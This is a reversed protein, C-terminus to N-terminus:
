GLQKGDLPASANGRDPFSVPPYGIMLNIRVKDEAASRTPTAAPGDAVAWITVDLLKETDGFPAAVNEIGIMAGGPLPPIVGLTDSM